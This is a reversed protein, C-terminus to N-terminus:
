VEISKPNFGLIVTVLKFMPVSIIVQGKQVHQSRCYYVSM